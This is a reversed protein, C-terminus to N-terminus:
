KLYFNELEKATTEILYGKTQLEKFTDQRSLNSTLIKQAWTSASDNLSIYTLLSSIQAEKPVVVDSTFTPLGSAQAEILVLGLGEYKSPFLFIDMAQMLEHVNNKFGAFIVQSSLGLKNVKNKIVEEKEGIGILILKVNSNQKSMENFIDILFDHNKQNTFRGVHGILIDSSKLQYQSRIKDRTEQNFRFKNYDIANHIIKFQSKKGFLWQGALDSCAFYDTAYKKMPIKLINGLFKKVPNKTQFDINHSHAIRIKIQHKQAYKLLLFNKSSANMHVVQYDSHEKFFKDLAKAYRLYDTPKNIWINKLKYFNCGLECLTKELPYDQKDDLTLVDIQLKTQDMFRINEILFQQIGGHRMRDVFILVKIKNKM